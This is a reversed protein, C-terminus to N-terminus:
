LIIVTIRPFWPIPLKAGLGKSKNKIINLDKYNQLFSWLKKMNIILDRSRKM